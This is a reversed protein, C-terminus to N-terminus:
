CSQMRYPNCSLDVIFPPGQSFEHSKWHRDSCCPIENEDINRVSVNICLLFSCLISSLLKVVSQPHGNQDGKSSTHCMASLSDIGFM